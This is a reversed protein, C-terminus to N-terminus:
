IHRRLMEKTVDYQPEGELQYCMKYIDAFTKRLEDSVIRTNRFATGWQVGNHILSGIVGYDELYYDNLDELSGQATCCLDWLVLKDDKKTYVFSGIHMNRTFYEEAHLKQILDVVEILGILFLRLMEPTQVNSYSFRDMFRDGVAELVLFRDDLSTQGSIEHPGPDSLSFVLPVIGRPRLTTYMGFMHVIPHDIETCDKKNRIQSHQTSYDNTGYIITYQVHANGRKYECDYTHFSLSPHWKTILLQGLSTNQVVQNEINVGAKRQAYNISPILPGTKPAEEDYVLQVFAVQHHEAKQIERYICIITILSFVILTAAVSLIYYTLM